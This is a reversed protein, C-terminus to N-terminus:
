VHEQEQIKKWWEERGPVRGNWHWCSPYSGTVLNMGDPAMQEGPASQFVECETDLSALDRAGPHRLYWDTWDRQDCGGEGSTWLERSMIQDLAEILALRRGMWGGACIYRWPSRRPPVPYESAWSGEPYCNTEAQLLIGPAGALRWGDMISHEGHVLLSDQSDTYLVFEETRGLLFRRAHEIKGVGYFPWGEGDGWTALPIGVRECSAKLLTMDVPPRAYNMTCVLLDSM